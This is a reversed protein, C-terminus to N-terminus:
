KNRSSEEIQAAAFPHPATPGTGLQEGAQAMTKGVMAEGVASVMM